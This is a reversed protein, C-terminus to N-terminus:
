KMWQVVRKPGNSLTVDPSRLYLAEMPEFTAGSALMADAILGLAEAPVEAADIRVAHTPPLEDPKALAPGAVRTPCGHEDVGSYESWYVEKRRADTVVRIATGPHAALAQAAIGDHSVLPLLQAGVGLALVEAAAIGVRLGTFPGPGMGAAVHTVAAASLGAEALCQAIMSGVVEAHRMTDPTSSAALVTGVSVLAISTGASTDIALIVPTNVSAATAAATAASM